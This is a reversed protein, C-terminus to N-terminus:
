EWHDVQKKQIDYVTAFTWNRMPITLMFLLKTELFVSTHCTSFFLMKWKNLSHTDTTIVDTSYTSTHTQTSHAFIDKSSASTQAVQMFVSSGHLVTLCKLSPLYIGNYRLYHLLWMFGYLTEELTLETISSLSQFSWSTLGISRM